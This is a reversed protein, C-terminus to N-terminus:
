KQAAAGGTSIKLLGSDKLFQFNLREQETQNLGCFYVRIETLQSDQNAQAQSTLIIVFCVLASLFIFNKRKM